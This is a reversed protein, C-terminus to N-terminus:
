LSRIILIISLGATLATTVAGAIGAWDSREDKTRIRKETKFRMSIESGATVTPYRKFWLFRETRRFRGSADQVTVTSKAAKKDFGGAFQEIYWKASRRGQYAVTVEGGALLSDVYSQRARTGLVRIDVLERAKPVSLEDGEILVINNPSRPDRVIDEMELIVYGVNDDERYLTAGAPFAEKTIGGAARILDSITQLADNLPYSGPYTVEGIVRVQRTIEFEPASRVAIVDYPQLRSLDVDGSVVEYDPSMVVSGLRTETSRNDGFELRFVEVRSLAAEEKFGGALTFLQRIGLSPDYVYRGPRRVAGKIEVHFSDTFLERPFIVLSDAPNLRVIDGDADLDVMQYRVVKRNSPERRFLIGEEAANPTLGGALLLAGRVTLTSDRSYRMRPLPERVAGTVSIFSKDTFRNQGLIELTDNRRLLVDASGGRLAEDLSVQLLTLTSDSNTRRIFAVDTRATRRLQASRVVSSLRTSDSFGFEGPLEVAGRVVINQTEPSEVARVTVRDGDELPFDGPASLDIDITALRGDVLRRVQVLDLAGAAAGGAYELLARIGERPLLEYRMPRRVAGDLAVVKTSIPVFVIDGNQLGIDAALQGPDTLYAYLDIVTREAGRNRQIRRVSGRETPGDAAVLATLASNVASLSYTGSREVEGFVNVSITRAGDVSLVFQGEDFLYSSRLRRSLLRRAEALSLGRVYVKPVRPPTIFGSGDVRLLLDIQSQGFITIALEDGVGLQYNDPVQADRSTTFVSLSGDEFVEHGYIGGDLQDEALTDRRFRLSDSLSDLRVEYRGRRAPLRDGPPRNPPLGDTPLGGGPLRAARDSDATPYRRRPREFGLSDYPPGTTDRTVYARNRQSPLRAGRERRGLLEGDRGYDDYPEDPLTGNARAEAELESVIQEIEPRLLILQERTM